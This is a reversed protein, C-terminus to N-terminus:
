FNYGIVVQLLSTRLTVTSSLPMDYYNGSKTIEPESNLFRIGLNINRIIIGAGMGLAFATSFSSKATGSVDAKTLKVDQIDMMLLGIQVLVYLKVSPSSPLEIRLGSMTWYSYYNEPSVKIPSVLDEVAKANLRNVSLTLSATWFIFDDSSLSAEITGSYGDTAFGNNLDNTSSFKGQPSSYGSYIAYHLALSNNQAYNFTSSLFILLLFSIKRKM